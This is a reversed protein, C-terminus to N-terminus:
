LTRSSISAASPARAKATQAAPLNVIVAAIIIIIIHTYQYEINIYEIASDGALNLRFRFLALYVSICLCVNPVRLHPHKGRGQEHKNATGRGQNPRRGGNMEINRVQYSVFFPAFPRSCHDSNTSSESQEQQGFNQKKHSTAASTIRMLTQGGM